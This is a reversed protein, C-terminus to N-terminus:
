NGISFNWFICNFHSWLYNSASPTDSKSSNNEAVLFIEGPSSKGSDWKISIPDQEQVWSPSSQTSLNQHPTEGISVLGTNSSRSEWNAAFHRREDWPFSLALWEIISLPSFFNLVFVASASIFRKKSESTVSVWSITVKSLVDWCWM